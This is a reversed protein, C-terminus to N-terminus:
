GEAIMLVALVVFLGAILIMTAWRFYSRRLAALSGLTTTILILLTVVRIGREAAVGRAGIAFPLALVAAVLMGILLIQLLPAQRQESPDQLHIDELWSNIRNWM